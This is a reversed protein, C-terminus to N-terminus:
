PIGARATFLVQLSGFFFSEQRPLFRKSEPTSFEQLLERVPEALRDGTRELLDQLYLLVYEELAQGCPQQRRIFVYDRSFQEFGAERLLRHAFRPFYTGIYSDEDGIDRHEAQRIALELHPPWSLMISHINDTELVALLGGPRLVRSFEGLVHPIATYSQMSHASWVADLCHTEFPLENVNGKLLSVRGAVVLEHLRTAAAKLYAQSNDLGIVQRAHLRDTLLRTFFGDGCGADLVKEDGELPVRGVIERFDDAFARHLADLREAYKPLSAAM